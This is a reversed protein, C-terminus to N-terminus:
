KLSSATSRIPSRASILSVSTVTLTTVRPIREKVVSGKM